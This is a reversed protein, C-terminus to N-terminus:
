LIQPGTEWIQGELDLDLGVVVEREAGEKSSRCVQNGIWYKM